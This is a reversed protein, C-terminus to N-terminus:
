DEGYHENWKCNLCIECPEDDGNSFSFGLCKGNGTIEPDGIGMRVAKKTLRCNQPTRRAM